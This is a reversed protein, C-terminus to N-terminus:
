WSGGAGGGNFGGGGGFGGWSSGGGGWNSGGGGIPGTPYWYTGTRRYGRHSGGGGGKSSLFLIIIIIIIIVIWIPFGKQNKPDASFEGALALILGDVTKDLGTYYDGVKLSPVLNRRAIGGAIGDTVRGQTRDATLIHYKRDNKALYILIGNNKGKQGIGWERSINITREIIDRGQLSNELVIGIQTSTSDEYAKLKQILAAKQNPNLSAPETFDNVLAKYKQVEPAQAALVQFIFLFLLLFKGKALKM